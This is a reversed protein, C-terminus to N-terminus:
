AGTVWCFRGFRAPSCYGIPTRRGGRGVLFFGGAPRSEWGIQQSLRVKRGRTPLIKADARRGDRVRDRMQAVLRAREGGRASPSWRCESLRETGARRSHDPGNKKGCNPGTPRVHLQGGESKPRRSYQACSSSTRGSNGKSKRARRGDRQSPRGSSPRPLLVERVDCGHLRSM